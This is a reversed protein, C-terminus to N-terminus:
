KSGIYPNVRIIGKRKMSIQKDNIITVPLSVFTLGKLIQLNKTYKLTQIYDLQIHELKHFFDTYDEFNYM